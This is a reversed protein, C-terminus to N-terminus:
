WNHITANLSVISEELAASCNAASPLTEQSRFGALFANTYDFIEELRTEYVDTDDEFDDQRLKFVNAASTQDVMIALLTTLTLFLSKQNYIQTLRRM